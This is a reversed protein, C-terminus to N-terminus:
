VTHGDKRRHRVKLQEDDYPTEPAYVRLLYALCQAAYLKVDQVRTPTPPRRLRVHM